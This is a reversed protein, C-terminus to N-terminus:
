GLFREVVRLVERERRARVDRFDLDIGLGADHGNRLEHRHIIETLDDIWHDHLPLYMAADLLADALRQEFVAPENM